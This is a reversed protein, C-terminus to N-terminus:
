HDDDSRRRKTEELPVKVFNAAGPIVGIREAIKQATTKEQRLRSDDPMTKQITFKYVLGDGDVHFVSYGDYWKLNKVRYDYKFFKPNLARLFSLYSIRWRLRVTGDELIPLINLASMEIHPFCVQGLVSFTGLHGMVDQLGQRQVQIIKNDVIVDRHYFTFDLRERFMLPVTHELRKQVHELQFMEPKQNARDTSGVGPAESAFM